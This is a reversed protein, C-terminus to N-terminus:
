RPPQPLYYLYANTEEKMGIHNWYTELSPFIRHTDDQVPAKTIGAQGKASATRGRKKALGHASVPGTYHTNHIVAVIIHDVNLHACVSTHQLEIQGLIDLFPEGQLAPFEQTVEFGSQETGTGRVTPSLDALHGGLVLVTSQPIKM